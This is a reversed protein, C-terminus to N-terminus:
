NSTHRLFWTRSCSFIFVQLYQSFEPIFVYRESCNDCRSKLWNPRAIGKSKRAASDEFSSLLVQNNVVICVTSSFIYWQIAFVGLQLTKDRFGLKNWIPISTVEETLSIFRIFDVVKVEKVLSVSNGIWTTDFHTNAHWYMGERASM